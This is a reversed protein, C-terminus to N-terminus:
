ASRKMRGFQMDDMENRMSFLESLAIRMVSTLSEIVQVQRHTLKYEPALAAHASQDASVALDADVSAREGSTAPQPSLGKRPEESTSQSPEVAAHSPAADPHAPIHGIVSAVEAQVDDDDSPPDPIRGVDMVKAAPASPVPQQAQADDATQLGGVVAGAAAATESAVQEMADATELTLANAALGRQGPAGGALITLLGGFQEQLMQQGRALNAMVAVLDAPAHSAAPVANNPAQPPQSPTAHVVPERAVAQEAAGIKPANPLLDAMRLVPEAAAPAGGDQEAQRAEIDQRLGEVLEDKAANSGAALEVDYSAPIFAAMEAILEEVDATTYVVAAQWGMNKMVMFLDSYCHRLDQTNAVQGIALADGDCAVQVGSESHFFVMDESSDHETFGCTLFCRTIWRDEKGPEDDSRLLVATYDPYSEVYQHTM